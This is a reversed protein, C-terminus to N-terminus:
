LKYIREMVNVEYTSDCIYSVIYMRRGGKDTIHKLKTYYSLADKVDEFEKSYEQSIRDVHTYFVTVM